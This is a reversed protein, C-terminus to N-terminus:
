NLSHLGRWTITTPHEGLLHWCRRGILPCAEKTNVVKYGDRWEPWSVRGICRFISKELSLYVRIYRAPICPGKMIMGKLIGTRKRKGSSLCKFLKSAVAIKKWELPQLNPKFDPTESATGSPQVLTWHNSFTLRSRQRSDSRGVMDRVIFKIHTERWFLDSSESLEPQINNKM